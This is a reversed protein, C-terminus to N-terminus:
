MPDNIIRNLMSVKAAYVQQLFRYLVDAVVVVSPSWEINLMSNLVDYPRQDEFPFYINEIDNGYFTTICVTIMTKYSKDVSISTVSEEEPMSNLMDALGRLSILDTDTMNLLATHDHVLYSLFEDSVKGDKTFSVLPNYYNRKTDYMTSNKIDDYIANKVLNTNIIATKTITCTKM